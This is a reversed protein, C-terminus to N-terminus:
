KATLIRDMLNLADKKVEPLIHTYIDATTSLQAHGLIESVIKLQVGQALLLSACYHRLDHLRFHSIGATKIVEYFHRNVNRPEMPTGMSTTFVLDSEQWRTGAKLKDQLQRKRHGQLKHLLVDPMHLARRSNNTKLETLHLKGGFRQLSNNVRLIRQEFDIDQWRLGLAEGRRLGLALAVTFLAELRDGAIASLFRRAEPQTIPQIEYKEVHPPEALSAANRVILGWKIAQNLAIRLVARIRQVTRGSLGSALLENLLRQVQQPTLKALQMSGLSPKIHKRVVTSYDEYTRPRTSQKACENLWQDLFRGVTQRESIPPIGQQLNRLTATLKDSVEKRTKGYIAKRKMKGEQYGVTVAATWRGDKRKYITGEGQGRKRKKSSQMSRNNLEEQDLVDANENAM